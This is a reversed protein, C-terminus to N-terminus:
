LFLSNLIANTTNPYEELTTLSVSYWVLSRHLMDVDDLTLRLPKATGRGEELDRKLFREMYGVYEELEMEEVLNYERKNLFGWCFFDKINERKIESAPAGLFWGSLYREPDPVSGCCRQFLERRQERGAPKPHIAADQLYYRRPLYVLFYFVAEGAAWVELIRPVRISTLGFPHLPPIIICYLICSPAIWHLFIICTRIFIYNWVSKGIM